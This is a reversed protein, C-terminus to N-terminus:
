DTDITQRVHSKGKQWTIGYYVASTVLDPGNLATLFESWDRDDLTVTIRANPMDLGTQAARLRQAMDSFKNM